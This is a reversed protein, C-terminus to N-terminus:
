WRRPAKLIIYSDLAKKFEKADGHKIASYVKNCARTEEQLRVREEEKRKAIEQPTEDYVSDCGM